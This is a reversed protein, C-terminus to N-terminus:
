FGLKVEVSTINSVFIVKVVVPVVFVFVDTAELFKKQGLKKVLFEDPGLIINKVLYKIILTPAFLSTDQYGPEWYSKISATPNQDFNGCKDPFVLVFNTCFQM